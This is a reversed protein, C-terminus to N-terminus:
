KARGKSKRVVSRPSKGGHTKVPEDTKRVNSDAAWDHEEPHHHGHVLDQLHKKFDKNDMLTIGHVITAWVAARARYMQCNSCVELASPACLHDRPLVAHGSTFDAAIVVILAELDDRRSGAVDEVAEFTGDVGDRGNAFM